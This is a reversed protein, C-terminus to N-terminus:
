HRTSGSDPSPDLPDFVPLSRAAQFAAFAAYVAYAPCGGREYAQRISPAFSVFEVFQVLTRADQFHRYRIADLVCALRYAHFTEM